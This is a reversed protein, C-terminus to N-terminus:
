RLRHAAAAALTGLANTALHLLAPALLSGSRQRLWAFLVGAGATGLCATGVAVAREVPGEALGNAALAGLTPRVHWIGFVAASVGTAGRPSLLRSLAALLVGRFAVEEWLVTGLPIRFLVQEAIEGGGLADVRDDALLPRAGPLALAVAYGSAVVAACGGGWRAGAPIRDRTLGLERWSLGTARAAGVLVGAATVNAAVYAGSHGPLRPVVLNNWVSLVAVLAAALVLV